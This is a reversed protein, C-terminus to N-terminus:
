YFRCSCSTGKALNMSSGSCKRTWEKIVKKAAFTTLRSLVSNLQPSVYEYHHSKLYSVAEKRENKQKRQATMRVLKEAAVSMREYGKLEDGIVANLYEIKNTTNDGLTFLFRRWASVWMERCRHWNPLFYQTYIRPCLQRLASARLNYQAHLIRKFIKVVGDAYRRKSRKASPGSQM